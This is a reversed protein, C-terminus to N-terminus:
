QGNIKAMWKRIIIIMIKWNKYLVYIARNFADRKAQKYLVENRGSKKKKHM